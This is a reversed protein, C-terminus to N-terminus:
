LDISGEFPAEVTQPLRELQLDIRPNEPPVPSADPESSPQMGATDSAELPSSTGNQSAEIQESPESPPAPLQPRVIRPSPTQGKLGKMWGRRAVEYLCLATAVSANLSPTVGRLPIRILQDCHRRTLMSLGQGESGTVVVLPGELDVEELTQDGEEALGVVRYGADKLTELSRNLNVVRAVPLHELAGAAVKAVSGTLGASRRQPLVVGHAGLAEASRVIAGLNHPDTLGDLALLLPPENLESCGDILDPLNLTDAAATQLAIGQHVAGGTMQALRAWTVEEVLVGSAKADRLLQMFKPASRMESTCWIRHIPRGAELAAQTAHRGWLLDDAVPDAAHPTAEGRPQDDVQRDRREGRGPRISRAEGDSFRRAGPRRDPFRREDSRRGKFRQDGDRREEPRRGEFRRDGDRSDEFRRSNFRRDDSRRDEFRRDGDRRDGQRRDEFRREWERRDGRGPPRSADRPGGRFAGNRSPGRGRFEGDRSGRWPTDGRSDDGDRRRSGTPSGDVRTRRGRPGGRPPRGGASDGGRSPRAPRRDFRSSM